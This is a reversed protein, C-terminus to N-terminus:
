CHLYHVIAYEQPSLNGSNDLDFQNFIEEADLEPSAPCIGTLYCYMQKFELLCLCEDQNEDYAVLLDQMNYGCNDCYLYYIIQLEAGCIQENHDVDFQNFVDEAEGADGNDPEDSYEENCWLQTFEELSILHDDDEDYKMMLGTITYISTDEFLLHHIMQMEYWDLKGSSNADYTEFQGPAEVVCQPEPEEEM